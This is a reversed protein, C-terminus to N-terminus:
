RRTVQKGYWSCPVVTSNSYGSYGSVWSCVVSCVPAEGAVALKQMACLSKKAPEVGQACGTFVLLSLIAILSRM